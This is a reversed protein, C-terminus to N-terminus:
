QNTEKPPTNPPNHRNRWEQKSKHYAQWDEIAKDTVSSVTEPSYGADLTAFVFKRIGPFLVTNIEGDVLIRRRAETEGIKDPTPRPKTM